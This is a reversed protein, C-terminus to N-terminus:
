VVANLSRYSSALVTMSNLPTIQHQLRYGSNFPELRDNIDGLARWQGNSLQFAIVDGNERFANFRPAVTPPLQLSQLFRRYTHSWGGRAGNGIQSNYYRRFPIAFGPSFDSESQFKNDSGLCIPNGAVPCQNGTKRRQDKLYGCAIWGFRRGNADPPTKTVDTLYSYNYEYPAEPSCVGLKQVYSHTLEKGEDVKMCSIRWFWGSAVEEEIYQTNYGWSPFDVECLKKFPAASQDKTAQTNGPGGLQVPHTTGGDVTTQAYVFYLPPEFGYDDITQASVSFALMLTSIFGLGCKYFRLM